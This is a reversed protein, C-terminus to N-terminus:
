TRPRLSTLNLEYREHYHVRGIVPETGDSDLESVERVTLGTEALGWVDKVSRGTPGGEVTTVVRIHLTKIKEGAVAVNEWGVVTLKSTATGDESWCRSTWSDGPKASALYAYGDCEMSRKDGQGFFEHYATFRRLEDGKTTRCTVREDWREEIADWREAVCGDGHSVTITTEAPYRHSSGRLADVEDGGETAYVYM